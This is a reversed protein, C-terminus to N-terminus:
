DAKDKTQGSPTVRDILLRPTDGRMSITMECALRAGKRVDGRLHGWTEDFAIAEYLGSPDSLTLVAMLTGKNTRRVDYKTVIAAMRATRPPHAMGALDAHFVCDRADQPLPSLPHDSMFHGLVDLENDLITERDLPPASRDAVADMMEFMTMQAHNPRPADMAALAAGRDAELPDLAGSKALAKLATRSLSGDVRGLFDELSSFPREMRATVIADAATRGVGRLAAFHQPELALVRELADLAPGFRDLNYLALSLGHWGEAFGPAHDTVARFQEAADAWDQRELADEGRRRLLDMAPSGSKSWANLVQAELRKAEAADQANGLRDLLADADQAVVGGPLLALLGIAALLPKFKPRGRKM